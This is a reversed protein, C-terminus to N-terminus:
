RYLGRRMEPLSVSDNCALDFFVFAEGADAFVCGLLNRDAALGLVPSSHAQFRGLVAAGASPSAVDVSLLTVAGRSDGM